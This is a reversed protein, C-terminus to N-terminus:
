AETYATEIRLEATLPDDTLSRYVQHATTEQRNTNGVIWSVHIKSPYTADSADVAEPPLLARWGSDTTSYASYGFENTARVWYYYPRCPMLGEQRYSLQATNTILTALAAQDNTHYSLAYVEAEQTATWSIDVYNSSIGKGAELQPPAPPTGGYTVTSFSSEGAANTAKVWYYYRFGLDIAADEYELAPSTHLLTALNTNDQASRWLQYGTAGASAGWTILISQTYGAEGKSASVPEPRLPVTGGYTSASLASLGLPTKARIWYYYIDGPNVDINDLYNTSATSAIKQASEEADSASRYIEYATVYPVAGWSLAVSNSDLARSAWVPEPAPPRQDFGQQGTNMMDHHYRPWPAELEPPVPGRIALLQGNEAGVYITGDMGILPSSYYADVPLFCSWNISGNAANLSHLKSGSVVYVTDEAGLAAAAQMSGGLDWQRAPASNTSAPDFAYFDKTVAGVYVRGDKGIVPASTIAASVTWSVATSGNAIDIGLLKDALGFYDRGDDSLAPASIYATATNTIEWGPAGSDKNLRLFAKYKGGSCPIYIDQNTGLAPASETQFDTVLPVQSSLDPSHKNFILPLAYDGCYVNGEMDIAPSDVISKGQYYAVQQLQLDLAHLKGDDDGVYLLGNTGIAPSSNLQAGATFSYLNAGDSPRFGYVKGDRSAIYITGDQSMAPSARLALTANTAQWKITGYQFIGDLRTLFGDCAGQNFRTNYNADYVPFDTSATYGAIVLTGFGNTDASPTIAVARAVDQGAGGLYTARSLLFEAENTRFPARLVAVFADGGGRASQQYAQTTLPFNSSATYGVVVVNTRGNPVSNTSVAIGYPVDLGSGGLYTAARPNLSGLTNNLAMVFADGAKNYNGFMSAANNGTPLAPLFSDSLSYTLGALYVVGKKDLCLATLRDEADGGIFTSRDMAALGATFRAVFGDCDGVANTQAGNTAPFDASYTYGAVYIYNSVALALIADEETGGLYSTAQLDALSSDDLAVFGDGAGNYNAYVGAVTPFDESETYGGVYVKGLSDLALANAEDLETGGLYSATLLMLNTNFRAVFADREGSLSGTAGPLDASETYGAVYISNSVALARAVDEGSGGFYTAALLNTMAHDFKAIFVDLDGAPPAAGPLNLSDTAGAVIVNSTSHEVAVAYIYDAGSGGIFTSALLPDIWLPRTADYAGLAFGFSDAAALYTIPVSIENGAADLQWAVPASFCVPGLETLVELEGCAKVKLGAAGELTVRIRAPDAGPAVTFIKEVSHGHARLELEIGEQIQGLSIAAYTALNNQWVAPDQGRISNVVTGAAKLGVPACIQNAAFSERLVALGSIKLNPMQGPQYGDVAPAAARKPLTYLVAGTDLVYVTGGFTRAYFRVAADPVQGRNEVFPVRPHDLSNWAPPNLEAASAAGALLLAM